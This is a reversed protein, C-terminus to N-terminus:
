IRKWLLRNGDFIAEIAGTNKLWTLYSRLTSGVLAYQEFSMRLGFETFIKTLLNELMIPESCFATIKEGNELTRDINLQALARINETAPAHSPVFMKAEMEMVARLTDLYAAVDFIFGIKYKELTEASSLCDALYLVDDETRFGVMDFSHGPLPVAEIGRPLLNDTLLEAGSEAAMLFKHRLECIPNGGYLFSPELLPHCTFDREIGKAYIKCGTQGELYANGGIHDAHSHTNLIMRLSLGMSDLTKKIKKGADKDNGSDIVAAEGDSIKFIGIKSPCDIYYSKDTIKVLEYM